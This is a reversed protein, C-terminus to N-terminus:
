HNPFNAWERSLSQFLWIFLIFSRFTINVRLPWSMSQLRINRSRCNRKTYISLLPRSRLPLPRRCLFRTRKILTENSTIWFKAGFIKARFKGLNKKSSTCRISPPRPFMLHVREGDGRPCCRTWIKVFCGANPFSKESSNLRQRPLAFYFNRAFRAVYILHAVKISSTVRSTWSRSTMMAVPSSLTELQPM